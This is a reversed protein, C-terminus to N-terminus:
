LLALMGGPGNGERSKESRPARASKGRGKEVRREDRGLRDERMPGEHRTRRELLSYLMLFNEEIERSASTSEVKDRECLPDLKSARAEATRALFPSFGSTLQSEGRKSYSGLSIRSKEIKLYRRQIHVVVLESLISIILM